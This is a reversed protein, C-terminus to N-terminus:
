PKSQFFSSFAHKTTQNKVLMLHVAPTPLLSLPCSSRRFDALRNHSLNNCSTKLPAAWGGWLYAKRGKKSFHYDKTFLALLLLVLTSLFKLILFGNAIPEAGSNSIALRGIGWKLRSAQKPNKRGRSHLHVTFLLPNMFTILQSM